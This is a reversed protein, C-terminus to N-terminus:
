SIGEEISYKLRMTKPLCCTVEPLGNGKRWERDKEVYKLKEEDIKRGLVYNMRNDFETKGFRREIMNEKVGFWIAMKKTQVSPKTKGHKIVLIHAHLNGGEPNGESFYEFVAISDGMAYLDKEMLEWTKSAMKVLDYDKPFTIRWWSHKIGDGIEMLVATKVELKQKREHEANKINNKYNMKRWEEKTMGKWNRWKGIEWIYDCAGCYGCWGREGGCFGSQNRRENYYDWMRSM